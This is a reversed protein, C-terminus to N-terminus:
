TFRRLAGDSARELRINQGAPLTRAEVSKGHDWTVVAKGKYSGGVTFNTYEIEDGPKLTARLKQPPPTAATPSPTRTAPPRDTRRQTKKLDGIPYHITQGSDFRVQAHLGRSGEDDIRTVTGIATGGIGDPAEVIDDVKLTVKSRTAVTPLTVNITVWEDVTEVRAKSGPVAVEIEKAMKRAFSVLTPDARDEEMDGGERSGFLIRDGDQSEEDFSTSQMLRRVIALAAEKSLPPEKKKRTQAPM